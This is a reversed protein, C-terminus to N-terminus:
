ANEKEYQQFLTQLDEFTIKLLKMTKFLHPLDNTIFHTKMLNRTKEYADDATFYGIGRKNHIIEQEQLHTYTRMVTNPNVEINVAMERVSPIKEGPPWKGTVINECIIDGIQLYIAQNKHFEM